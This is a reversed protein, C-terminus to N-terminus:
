QQQGVQWRMIAEIQGGAHWWHASILTEISETDEPSPEAPRERDYVAFYIMADSGLARLRDIWHTLPHLASSEFDSSFADSHSRLAELRLARYALVDSEQAPRITISSNTTQMLVQKMKLLREFGRLERLLV